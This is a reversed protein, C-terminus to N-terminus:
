PCTVAGSQRVAPVRMAAIAAPSIVDINVSVHWRKTLRIKPPANTPTGGGIVFGEFGKDM